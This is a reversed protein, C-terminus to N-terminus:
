KSRADDIESSASAVKRVNIKKKYSFTGHLVHTIWVGSSCVFLVYSYAQRWRSGVGYIMWEPHIVFICLHQSCYFLTFRTYFSFVIWHTKNGVAGIYVSLYYYDLISHISWVYVCFLKYKNTCFFIRNSCLCNELELWYITYRNTFHRLYVSNRLLFAWEKEGQRMWLLFWLCWVLWALVLLYWCVDKYTSWNLWRWSDKWASSHLCMWRFCLCSSALTALRCNGLPLTTPSM